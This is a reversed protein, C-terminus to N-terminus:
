RWDATGGRSLGRLPSLGMARRTLAPPHRAMEGAGFPRFDRSGWGCVLFATLFPDGHAATGAQRRPRSTGMDGPGESMVETERGVVLFMNALERLVPKDALKADISEWKKLFSPLAGPSLHEVWNVPGFYVGHIKPEPFGASEFEKRLSWSTSFFQKLRVLSGVPIATAIRNVLLYGNVSLTPAATVLVVGGPKLVRAMERIAKTMNPLYRLVEICILYDFSASEFPLQEVDATKIEVGPNNRRAHQIMEESGDVGAVSYGRARL